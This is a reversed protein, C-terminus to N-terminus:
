QQPRESPAVPVEPSSPAAGAGAGTSLAGAGGAQAQLVKNMNAQSIYTAVPSIFVWLVFLLGAEMGPEAGVVGSATQLRKSFKFISVFAPVIILAGLTIALVSMGPSDGLEDTNHAKGIEALEKNVFYYWFVGYIGLTILSLGLVGLPNRIKGPHSSGQIQIAEAM